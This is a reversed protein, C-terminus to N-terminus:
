SIKSCKTELVWCPATPAHSAGREWGPGWGQAGGRQEGASCPQLPSLFTTIPCFVEPHACHFRTVRGRTPSFFCPYSLSWQPPESLRSVLVAAEEEHHRTTEVSLPPQPSLHAAPLAEGHGWPLGGGASVLYPRWTLHSCRSQGAGM